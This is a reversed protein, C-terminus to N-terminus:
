NSPKGRKCSVLGSDGNIQYRKIIRRMQRETVGAKSAAEKQTIRKDLVKEVLTKRALEKGNMEITWTM